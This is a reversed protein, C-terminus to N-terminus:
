TSRIRLNYIKSVRDLFESLSHDTKMQNCDGCCPVCNSVTYGISNDLRDVGNYVYAGNMWRTRIINHVPCEGCYYCSQKTLVAFQEKTLDFSLGRRKAQSKYCGYLFTFAAVGPEKKQRNSLLEKQLCGCSRTFGMKLKNALVIKTNGCDCQCLWQAYQRNRKGAFGTTVLRGFRQGSLDETHIGLRM